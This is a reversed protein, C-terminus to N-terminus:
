AVSKGLSFALSPSATAGEQLACGNRRKLSVLTGGAKDSIRVAKVSLVFPKLSDTCPKTAFPLCHPRNQQQARAHSPHTHTM